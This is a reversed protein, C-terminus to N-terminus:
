VERNTPLTLHTYSVPGPWAASARGRGRRLPADAPTARAPVGPRPGPATTGARRRLRFLYGRPYLESVPGPAAGVTGVTSGAGSGPVGWTLFGMFITTTPPTAPPM